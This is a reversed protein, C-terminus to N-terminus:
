VEPILLEVFGRVLHVAREAQRQYLCTAGILIRGKRLRGSGEWLDLLDRRCVTLRKADILGAKLDELYEDGLGFRRKLGRYSVRGQRRL